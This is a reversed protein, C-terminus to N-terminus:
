NWACRFCEATNGITKHPSETIGPVTHLSELPQCKVVLHLSPCKSNEWGPRNQPYRGELAYSAVMLWLYLDGQLLEKCFPYYNGLWGEQTAQKNFPPTSPLQFYFFPILFKDKVKLYRERVRGTDYWLTEWM